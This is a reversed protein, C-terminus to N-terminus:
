GDGEGDDGDVTGDAPTRGDTPAPEEGVPGPEDAYTREIRRLAAEAREVREASAPVGGYRVEEFLRTLEAVDERDLGAAVAADAFAAPTGTAHDVPLDATMERWARYVANEPDVDGALRDAARGAADAVAAPTAPSADDPTSEAPLPRRQDGSARVIVAVAGLLLLGVMALLATPPDVSRAVADTAGGGGAPLSPEGERFGIGTGSDDPQLLSLLAYIGAAALAGVVAASLLQRAGYERYLEYCGYVAALLFGVSLLTELWAPLTVPPPDLQEFGGGLSFGGDDAVGPGPGTGPGAGAGGGAADLTAAVVGLALVALLALLGSAVQERNV